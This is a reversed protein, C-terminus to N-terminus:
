LKAMDKAAVREIAWKTSPAASLRVVQDPNEITIHYSVKGNAEERYLNTIWYSKYDKKIATLLKAPLRDSLINKQVITVKKAPTEGNTLNAAHVTSMVVVCVFLSVITKKM